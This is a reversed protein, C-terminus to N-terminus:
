LTAGTTYNHWFIPDTWMYATYLGYTGPFHPPSLIWGSRFVPGPPGAFGTPGQAGWLGDYRLWGENTILELSYQSMDEPLYTGGLPIFGSAHSGKEVFVVPHNTLTSLLDFVWGSREIHNHWSYGAVEPVLNEVASNGKPPLILQIMEWDGEHWNNWLDYIYFFWYQVIIYEKYSTFVHSYITLDHEPSDQTHYTNELDLYYDMGAYAELEDPTPTFDVPTGTDDMLDAHDLLASIERPRWIETVDFYLQPLFKEALKMQEQYSLEYDLSLSYSIRADDDDSSATGDRSGSDAIGVVYGGPQYQTAARLDFLASYSFDEGTFSIDLQDNFTLDVDWAEVTVEVIDTDDPVNAVFLPSNSSSYSQVDEAVPVESHMWNESGWQDSVKVRFYPEARRNEEVWPYYITFSRYRIRCGSWSCSLYPVRVTRSRTVIEFDIPDEIELYDISVKVLLDHLPDIDVEDSYGDNDSDTDLANILGDGDTDVLSDREVPWAKSSWARHPGDKFTDGDSDSNNPNTGLIVEGVDSLSDEDADPVVIYVVNNSEDSEEIAHNQDVEIRLNHFGLPEPALTVNFDISSGAEIGTDRSMSTTWGTAEDSVEFSVSSADLDGDNQVTLSMIVDTGDTVFEIDDTSVFLDPPRPNEATIVVTDTDRGGDNDIVTLTVYYTGAAGFVHTTSQGTGTTGDMFNWEYSVITGDPDTSGAGSQFDVSFGTFVSQDLGADATPPQNIVTFTVTSSGTEDDDDTVTLTVDYEGLQMFRVSPSWAHLLTLLLDGVFDWHYAEVTGDTDYSSRADLQVDVGRYVTRDLGFDALPPANLPNTGAIVEEYDTAGDRDTDPHNPDTGYTQTEEYDDLGEGDTDNSLPNTRYVMVEEWDDLLDDDSDPDNPDTKFVYVESGDLLGEGDTDNLLPNTGFIHVEFGDRLSDADSDANNPDTSYVPEENDNLYDFDTDARDARTESLLPEHQGNGNSDETGDLIGDGDSDPNLPDTIIPPAAPLANPDPIGIEIGDNIGDMDTDPNTPNTEGSTRTGDLNLDEDGDRIGDADSDANLPDSPIGDYNSLLEIYDFIGDLDTDGSNPNPDLTDSDGDRDTDIDFPNTGIDYQEFGDTFWGTSQALFGDAARYGDGDTDIDMPDSIGRPVNLVSSITGTGNNYSVFATDSWYELKMLLVKDVFIDGLVGLARIDIDITDDAPLNFQLAFLWEYLHVNRVVVNYVVQRVLAFQVPPVTIPDGGLTIDVEMTNSSNLSASVARVFVVYTGNPFIYSTDSIFAVRGDPLPTVHKSNSATTNDVIQTPSWAFDEAEYWYSNLVSEQGEIILDGDTDQDLPDTVESNISEMRVLGVKDIVVWSFLTSTIIQVMGQSVTFFPTSYWRYIPTLYHFDSNVIMTSNKEISLLISRNETELFEGRARVFFKYDGDTVPVSYNFLIGSGTSFLALGNRADNDGGVVGREPDLEEAEYWYSWTTAESGDFVGDDDADSDMPAPDWGDIVNDADSDNNLPDSGLLIEDGDLLLDDDSDPDLANILSDGDTDVNWDPEAGDNVGDDESDVDLPNTGYLIEENDLLLDHDTDNIKPNTGYVRIEDADELTDMDTDKSLPNTDFDFVEEKDDLSDDDTDPLTPDSGVTNVETGDSLGEGDSDPNLPDTSYQLVEEADSLGDDDSDRDNPNTGILLEHSDSLVDGDTDVLTPNTGYLYEELNTLGDGDKDLQADNPN